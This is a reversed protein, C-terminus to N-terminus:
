APPHSDILRGYCMGELCLVREGGWEMVGGDEATCLGVLELWAEWLRSCTHVCELRCAICGVEGGRRSRGSKSKGRMSVDLGTWNLRQKELVGM